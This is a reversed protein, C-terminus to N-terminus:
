AEPRKRPKRSAIRANRLAARMKQVGAQFPTEEGEREDEAPLIGRRERLSKVARTLLREITRVVRLVVHAADHLVRELATGVLHKVFAGWDVHSAIFAMRAVKADLKNRWVGAIRMGRRREFSALMLFGGFLILSIGILILYLM